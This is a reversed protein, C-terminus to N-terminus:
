RNGQVGRILTLRSAPRGAGKDSKVSVVRVIGKKMLGEVIRKVKRKSRRGRGVWENVDNWTKGKIDSELFHIVEEADDNIYSGFIYDICGASYRQMALAIRLHRATVKTSKDLLAVRAASRMIQAPARAGLAGRLEEAEDSGGLYFKEWIPRADAAFTLAIPEGFEHPQILGALADRAPQKIHEPVSQPFAIKSNQRSMTYQFRNLLGNRIEENTINEIFEDQTCHGIISVFADNMEAISNKRSDIGLPEADLAKRITTSLSNGERKMVKLAGAFEECAMLLTHNDKNSVAQVLGEGSVQDTKSIISNITSELEHDLFPLRAYYLGTGKRAVGSEGIVICGGNLRFRYDGHAFYTRRGPLIGAVEMLQFLMAPPYAETYPVLNKVYEGLVFDYCIDDPEPPGPLPIFAQEPREDCEVVTIPPLDDPFEDGNSENEVRYGQRVAERSAAGFDGGFNLTTWAEFRTYTKQSEFPEIHPDTSFIYFCDPRADTGCFGTTGSLGTQKGPRTWHHVDGKDEFLTWGHPTLIDSWAVRENFIDGPRDNEIPTIKTNAAPRAPIADVIRRVLWDPATLVEADEPRDLWTRYDSGPTPLLSQAPKHGLRYEFGGGKVVNPCAAAELRARDGGGLRFLWHCGRKSSWSVTKQGGLLTIFEVRKENRTEEDEADIEVDIVGGLRIALALDDRQALWKGYEDRDWEHTPWDAVIGPNKNADVLIIDLDLASFMLADRLIAENHM